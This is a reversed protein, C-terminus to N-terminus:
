SAEDALGVIVTEPESEVKEAQSPVFDLSCDNVIDPESREASIVTVAGLPKLTELDDPEPKAFDTVNDCDPPVTLECFTYTTIGELLEEPFIVHADVPAVSPVTVAFPVTFESGVAPM